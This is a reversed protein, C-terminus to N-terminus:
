TEPAEVVRQEESVPSSSDSAGERSGEEHGLSEARVDSDRPTSGHRHDGLREETSDASAAQARNADIEQRQREYAILAESLRITTAIINVLWADLVTNDTREAAVSNIVSRAAHALEDAAVRLGAYEVERANHVAHMARFMGYVDDMVSLLLAFFRALSLGWGARGM